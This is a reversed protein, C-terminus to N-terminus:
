PHYSKLVRAIYEIDQERLLEHYPLLLASNILKTTDVFSDADCCCNLLEYKDRFYPYRFWEKDYMISSAINYKALEIQVNKAGGKASAMIPLKTIHPQYPVLHAEQLLGSGSLHSEYLMKVRELCFVVEPMRLFQHYSIVATMESMARNRTLVGGVEWVEEAGGHHSRTKFYNIARLDNTAIGGGNGVSIGKTANFSFLAYSGDFRLTLPILSYAFDEIVWIKRNLAAEIFSTTEPHRLGIHHIWILGQIDQDLYELFQESGISYYTGEIPVPIPIAGKEALLGPISAFCNAPVAVRKGKVQLHDFLIDLADMGSSFLFAEANTANSFIEQFRHRFEGNTLRGTSMIDDLERLINQRTEEPFFPRRSHAFGPVHDM